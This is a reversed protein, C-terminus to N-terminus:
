VTMKLIIWSTPVAVCQLSKAIGLGEWLILNEDFFETLGTNFHARSNALARYVRQIM